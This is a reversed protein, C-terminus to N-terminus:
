FGIAYQAGTAQHESYANRTKSGKHITHKMAPKIISLKHLNHLLIEQITLMAVRMVMRHIASSGEKMCRFFQLSFHLLCTKPVLLRKGDLPWGPKEVRDPIAPM